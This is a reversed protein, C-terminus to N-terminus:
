VEGFMYQRFRKRIKNEDVIGRALQIWSPITLDKMEYPTYKSTKLGPKRLSKPLLKLPVPYTFGESDREPDPHLADLRYTLYELEIQPPNTKNAEDLGPVYYQAYGLPTLRKNSRCPAAPDSHWPNDLHCRWTDESKCQTTKNGEHGRNHGHNRKMEKNWSEVNVETINYSFIRFTPIYPNPVVSPGVNVVAYDEYKTDKASKPLTSFEQILTEFLRKKKGRMDMEGDTTPVIQLDIAELFFFHDTNMHGFLHGLITDQFRLALEVYRVYCEPFYNGRSPPVHGSMWVQMGRKRYMKLQVELWDFQLNGPDNPEKYICGSIAKNSDYFYM